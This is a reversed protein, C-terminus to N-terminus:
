HMHICFGSKNISLIIITCVGATTIQVTSISLLMVSFLIFDFIQKLYKRYSRVTHRVLEKSCNCLSVLESKILVSNSDM